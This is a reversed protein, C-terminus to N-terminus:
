ILYNLFIDFSGATLDAVTIVVTVARDDTVQVINGPVGNPIPGLVTTFSAIPTAAILDGASEIQLAITTAGGSTLTDNVRIYGGTILSSSPLTFPLEISGIAGGYEEVSFPIKITGGVNDDHIRPTYKM